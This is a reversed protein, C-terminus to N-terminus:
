EATNKAEATQEHRPSKRAVFTRESELYTYHTGCTPCIAHVTRVIRFRAGPHKRRLERMYDAFYKDARRLAEIGLMRGCTLCAFANAARRLRFRYWVHWMGVAPIWIPLSLMLAVVALAVAWKSIRNRRLAQM